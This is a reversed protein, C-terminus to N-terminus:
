LWPTTPDLAAEAPLPIKSPSELNQRSTQKSDLHTKPVLLLSPDHIEKTYACHVERPIPYALSALNRGYVATSSFSRVQIPPTRTIRTRESSVSNGEWITQSGQLCLIQDEVAQGQCKEERKVIHKWICDLSESRPHFTNLVQVRFGMCRTGCFCSLNLSRYPRALKPPYLACPKPTGM